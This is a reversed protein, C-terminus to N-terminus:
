TKEFEIWYHDALMSLLSMDGFREELNTLRQLLKPRKEVVAFTNSPPLFLGLPKVSVRKFFPAFEQTLRNVTPYAIPIGEFASGRLRRLATKFDGHLGFWLLEWLCYPSMVGFAVIGKRKVRNSLWLAMLNWSDLCNLAGFNSFVGDFQQNKMDKSFPAPEDPLAPYKLNLHEVRVLPQHQTKERAVKLMETSADTATVRIGNDALFLADEGTGCGLELVHNGARFHRLLRQHVRDRLYRGIATHTFDTDYTPAISDFATV